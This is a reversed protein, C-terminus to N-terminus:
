IIDGNENHVLVVLVDYRYEPSQTYLELFYVMLFTVRAIFRLAHTKRSSEVSDPAFIYYEMGLPVKVEDGGLTICLDFGAIKFVFKPAFIYPKRRLILYGTEDIRGNSRNGRKSELMGGEGDINVLMNELMRM